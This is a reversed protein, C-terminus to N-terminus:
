RIGSGKFRCTAADFRYARHYHGVRYSLASYVARGGCRRRRSATVTTPSGPGPGGYLGTATSVRSGWRKWHLKAFGGEFDDPLISPHKLMHSEVHLGAGSLWETGIYVSGGALASNAAVAELGAMAAITIITTLRRQM